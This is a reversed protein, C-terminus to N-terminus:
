DFAGSAALVSEVRPNNLNERMSHEYVEKFKYYNKIPIAGDFLYLVHKMFKRQKEASVPLERIRRLIAVPNDSDSIITALIHSDNANFYQRGLSEKLRQLIANKRESSIPFVELENKMKAINTHRRLLTQLIPKNSHNMSKIISVRSKRMNRTYKKLKQSETMSNNQLYPMNNNESENVNNDDSENVNSRQLGNKIRNKSANSVNLSNVVNLQVAPDNYEAKIFQLYEQENKTLTYKPLNTPFRVRRTRNNPAQM